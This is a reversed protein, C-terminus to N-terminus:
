SPGVEKEPAPPLADAPVTIQYKPHLRGGPVIVRKGAGLPIHAVDLQKVWSHACAEALVLFLRKVKVSSCAQLLKQVLKPRLTTLGEMLLQAEEFSQQKPVFHLVELIAREPASLRLSFGGVDRETLGCSEAEAELLQTTCYHLRGPWAHRSFWAPLREGPRGFLWVPARDGTALCHAYGQLQLATKGAPHITCETQRQLAHLAGMWTVAEGPRAFAGRGFPTLWQTDQYRSALQRSIGHKRLWPYTVVTGRPWNALLRNIKTPKQRDSISM